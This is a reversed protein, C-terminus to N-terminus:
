SAVVKELNWTIRDVALATAPLFTIAKSTCRAGPWDAITNSAVPTNPTFSQETATSLKEEM